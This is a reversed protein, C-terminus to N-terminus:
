IYLASSSGYTVWNLGTEYLRLVSDYHRIKQQLPDVVEPLRSRRVRRQKNRIM